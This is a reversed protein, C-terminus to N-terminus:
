SIAFSAPTEGAVTLRIRVPEVVTLSSFRWFTCFSISFYSKLGLAIALPRVTEDEFVIPM